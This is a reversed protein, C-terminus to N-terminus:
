GMEKLETGLEIGNVNSFQSKTIGLEIGNVNSFQLKAIASWM